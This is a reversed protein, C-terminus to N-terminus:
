KRAKISFMLPIKINKDRHRWLGDAGKVFFPRDGYVSFPFEHVFEIKLGAGIIANIVDSLSHYWEYCPHTFDVKPEAYSARWEDKLPQTGRLYPHKFAGNDDFMGLLPHFEVIYFIGAQELFYHITEAWACLDPLWGLVGYSTFVIDFTRQLENKLNYVNCSIFDAPINLEEKLSSALAIAKSSFDVGTVRAGLRAWSLTDLGFHCQLHLLTKGAVDGMEELEIINLSSKGKKFGDVDYFRSKEHISTLGDWLERNTEFYDHLKSKDM